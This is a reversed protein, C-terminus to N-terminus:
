LPLQLTTGHEENVRVTADSDLESDSLTHRLGDTAIYVIKGAIHTFAVAQIRTGNQLVLTFQGEDPVPAPESTEPKAAAPQTEPAQQLVIIQPQPQAPQPATEEAPMETEGAASSDDPPLYYAGGGTLLYFGSNFGRARSLFREAEAIRWQTAPDIAAEIGLDQNVGGLYGYENGPGPAQPLFGGFAMPNWSGAYVAAKKSTAAPGAPASKRAAPAYFHNAPTQTLHRTSFTRGSSFSPRAASGARRQAQVPIALSVSLLALSPLLLFFRNLRKM